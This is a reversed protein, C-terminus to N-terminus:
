RAADALEDPTNCNAFSGEDAFDCIAAGLGAQWARVKHGGGALYADLSAMTDRRVLCVTPQWQGGTRAVALPAEGLAAELRERLDLPLHPADCPVCLLRTAATARWAAQLGALPGAREGAAPLAPVVVHGFALYADLNRNASIILADVQPAIRDLVHAVLPRGRFGLLGKDAGGMRTAAGGALVM